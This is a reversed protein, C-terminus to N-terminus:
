VAENKPTLAPLRGDIVEFVVRKSEPEGEGADMAALQKLKLEIDLQSHVLDLRKEILSAIRGTYRIVLDDCTQDQEDKGRLRLVRALMVRALRIEDDLGGAADKFAEFNRADEASMFKSYLAGARKHNQNGKVGTSRGGHYHCKTKGAIAYAKCPLGSQKSKANCIIPM